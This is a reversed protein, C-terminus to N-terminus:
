KKSNNSSIVKWQHLKSFENFCILKNFILLQSMKVKKKNKQINKRLFHHQIKNISSYLFKSNVLQIDYKHKAQMKRKIFGITKEFRILIFYFM